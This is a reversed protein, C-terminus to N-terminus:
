RCVLIVGNQLKEVEKNNLKHCMNNSSFTDLDKHFVISFVSKFNNDRKLFTKLYFM